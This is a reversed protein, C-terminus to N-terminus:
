RLTFDDTDKSAALALSADSTTASTYNQEQATSNLDSNAMVLNKLTAAQDQSINSKTADVSDQNTNAKKTNM